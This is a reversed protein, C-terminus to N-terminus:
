YVGVDVKVFKIYRGGNSKVEIKFDFVLILVFFNSVSIRIIKFCNRDFM